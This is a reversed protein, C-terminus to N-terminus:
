AYWPFGWGDLNVHCVSGCLLASLCCPGLHTRIFGRPSVASWVPGCEVCHVAALQGCEPVDLSNCANRTYGLDLVNEFFALGLSLTM